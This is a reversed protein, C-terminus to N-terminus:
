LCFSVRVYEGECAWVNMNPLFQCWLKLKVNECECARRRAESVFFTQNVFQVFFSISILKVCLKLSLAISSSFIFQCLYGHM